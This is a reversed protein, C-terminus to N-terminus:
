AFFHLSSFSPLSRWKNRQLFGDEYVRRVRGPSRGENKVAQKRQAPCLFHCFLHKMFSTERRWVDWLKWPSIFRLLHSTESHYAPKTQNGNNGCFVIVLYYTPLFPKLWSVNGYQQEGGFSSLCPLFRSAPTSSVLKNWMVQEAQKRMSGWVILGLTAPGEGVTM